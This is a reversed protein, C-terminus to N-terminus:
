LASFTLVQSLDIIQWTLRKGIEHLHPLTFSGGEASTGHQNGHTEGTSLYSQEFLVHMIQNFLRLLFLGRRLCEPITRLRISDILGNRIQQRNQIIADFRFPDLNSQGFTKKMLHPGETIVCPGVNLFCDPESAVQVSFGGGSDSHTFERIARQNLIQFAKRFIRGRRRRGFLRRRADNGM